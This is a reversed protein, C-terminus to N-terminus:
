EARGKARPPRPTERSAQAPESRGPLFRRWTDPRLGRPSSCESLHREDAREQHHQVGSDPQEAKGERHDVRVSQARVVDRFILVGTAEASAGTRWRVKCARM